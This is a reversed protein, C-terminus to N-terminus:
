PVPPITIPGSSYIPYGFPPDASSLVLNRLLGTHAQISYREDDDSTFYMLEVGLLAWLGRVTEGNLRGVWTEKEALTLAHGRYVTSFGENDAAISFLFPTRAAVHAAWESADGDEPGIYWSSDYESLMEGLEEFSEV